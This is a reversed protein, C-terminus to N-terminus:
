FNTSLKLGKEIDEDVEKEVEEDDSNTTKEVKANKKYGLITMLQGSESVALCGASVRTFDAGPVIAFM